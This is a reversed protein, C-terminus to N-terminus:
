ELESEPRGTPRLPGFLDTVSPQELMFRARIAGTECLEYLAQVVMGYEVGAGTAEDRSGRPPPSGLLEVLEAVDFSAELPPGTGSPWTRLVTIASDGAAANLTLAGSPHHYFLPPECRLDRGFIAIRRSGSRKVHIMPEADSPVLDMAFNGRGILRTGLDPDVRETLADYAAIRVPLDDDSVLARLPVAARPIEYAQGLARIAAFRHESQEDAAREALVEVALSDGLRLGALAAFFRVGGDEHAYLSSISPLATRGIGEWALAIAERDADARVIEEALARARVGPLSAQGGIGLHQVVKLFHAPDRAHEQPVTLKIYSPSIPDAVKRDAPFRSNIASAIAQAKSYSPGFLVLRLRRDTTVRGGGLIRGVREASRTAASGRDSFPNLFVPGKAEALPRGTLAASPSLMRHILLDAPFLFGGRLSTTETGSLAAVQVDFRSGAVAGAPIEGEITVVATDPHDILRGPTWEHTRAGPGSFEPRKQLQDLIRSRAQRPCTTSGAEGLGLVLGYGRVNMKRLGEIWAYQGVTESVAASSSRDESGAVPEPPAGEAGLDWSWGEGCGSALAVPLLVAPFVRRILKM